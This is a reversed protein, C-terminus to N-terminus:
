PYLLLYRFSTILSLLRLWKLIILESLLYNVFDYIVVLHSKPYKNGLVTQQFLSISKQYIIEQNRKIDSILNNM